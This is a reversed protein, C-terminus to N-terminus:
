ETGQYKHPLTIVFEAGENPATIINIKGAHKQIIKFVIAMGLGTGEGVDKTTFFPEFIRHKTEETMGPGTDKISIEIQDNEVDRTKIIISEEETKEPKSKIAQIANTIINMFVQNLKGPFCEVQNGAQFDKILKINYPVNNKLLVITSLIGDHVNVTKLSAEDIRSFTRLGRVIEATREAGEEIGIILSDIENRLFPVDMDEKLEKIAGLKEKYDNHDTAKHLEDYANLVEMLDKVDLRLPNINSKVFNIPNNIEHAIGATLEGLSAMKEAEVLQTQTDKLNNLADNLHVNSTQLENTRSAVKKELMINQESVLQENERAQQLAQAQSQEKEKKLINIRDALAISLLVTEIASGLYLIYNTFSNAPIIDWNRLSFIVLGSLFVVWSVAYYFAPRYGKFIIIIAATIVLVGVALVNATFLDYSISNYHLLSFIICVFNLVVTVLLLKHFLPTYFKTRLFQISFLVGFITALASTIPVAYYNIAPHSFWFFKFMYGALSFQAVGLFFIYLIYVLYNQDGTVFFLFLNYLFVVILIGLYISAITLQTQSQNSVSKLNGIYSSLIVPHFSVIHIYYQATSDPQLQLNALYDPLSNSSSHAIANGDVYIQVLKNNVEKYLKLDSLNYYELYFYLDSNKTNNLLSFRLWINIDPTSLIPITKANQKFKSSYIVNSSDFANNSNQLIEFYVGIKVM